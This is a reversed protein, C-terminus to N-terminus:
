GEGRGRAPKPEASPASTAKKGDLLAQVADWEPPFGWAEMPSAVGPLKFVRETCDKWAARALALHGDHVPDFTGGLLGIRRRRTGQAISVTRVPVLYLVGALLLSLGFFAFVLQMTARQLPAM